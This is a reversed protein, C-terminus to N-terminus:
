ENPSFQALHLKVSPFWYSLKSRNLELHGSSLFVHLYALYAATYANPLESTARALFIFILM